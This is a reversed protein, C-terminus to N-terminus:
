VWTPASPPRRGPVAEAGRMDVRGPDPRKAGSRTRSSMVARYRVYRTTGLYFRRQSRTATKVPPVVVKTGHAPASDYIAITGYAADATVSAIDGEVDDILNVGTKEDDTNGGALVESVIVGSEDVGPHLKSM